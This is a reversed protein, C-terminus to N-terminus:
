NIRTTPRPAVDNRGADVFLLPMKVDVLPLQFRNAEAQVVSESSALVALPKDVKHVTLYRQSDDAFSPSRAAPKKWFCAANRSPADGCPEM